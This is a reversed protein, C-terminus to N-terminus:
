RPPRVEAQSSPDAAPHSGARRGVPPSTSGRAAEARATAAPSRWTPGLAALGLPTAKGIGSSGGTVLVTKGAM